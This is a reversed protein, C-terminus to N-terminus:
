RDSWLFLFLFLPSSILSVVALRLPPLLSFFLGLFAIKDMFAGDISFNLRSFPFPGLDLPLEKRFSLYKWEKFYIQIPSSFFLSYLPFKFFGHRRDALSIPDVRYFVVLAQRFLTFPCFSFFPKCLDVEFLAYLAERYFSPPCPCSPVSFPMDPRFRSPFGLFLLGRSVMM